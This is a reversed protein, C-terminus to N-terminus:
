TASVDRDAGAHHPLRAMHWFLQRDTALTVSHATGPLIVFQRDGNPLANFSQEIDAVTAIGDYEDRVVLAPSLVKDPKVVPLNATMDLYTGTPVQDGFQMEVDALAEVAAPDSTGPKDRTAISRIMDRDRKRM